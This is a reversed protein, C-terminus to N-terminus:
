KVEKWNSPVYDWGTGYHTVCLLYLDLEEYYIVLENTYDKLTDADYSSIIYYQYIDVECVYGDEDEESEWMDGCFVEFDINMKSLQPVVDNNLIMGGTVCWDIMARYSTNKEKATKLVELQFKSLNEM